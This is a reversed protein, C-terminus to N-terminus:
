LAQAEAMCLGMLWRLGSDNQRLKHWQLVEQVGPVKIPLPHIAIPHIASFFEAHRRHMTAVRDTGVVAGPLAAFSPVRVAVQREVGLTDFHLETVTPMREKGFVAVAHDAALFQQASVGDALAGSKWCIVSDEDSFLLQSPHDELAYDSVTIMIDIDGDHFQRIREPGPPSLDFTAHPSVGAAAALVKSILLDYAYDSAVIRFRRRSHMPDYEDSHTIRFRVINLMEKIAPALEQGKATPMMKRGIQVLLDDGFYDRLRALAASVSPQSLNMRRATETVSRTDLLIDLAFLLNLDLRDFRM